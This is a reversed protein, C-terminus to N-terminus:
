QANGDGPQNKMGKMCMAVMALCPLLYLFPLVAAFGLWASGLAAAAVALVVSVGLMWKMRRTM